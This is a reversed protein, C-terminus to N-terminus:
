ALNFQKVMEQAVVVKGSYQMPDPCSSCLYEVTSAPIDMSKFVSPDIGAGVAGTRAKVEIEIRETLVGGPDLAIVPIKYQAMESGLCEVFRNLALKTITYHMAIGGKGPVGHKGYAAGSTTCIIMGTKNQIMNPICMRSAIIPAMLNTNVNREWTDVDLDLFPDFHGPGVYRANNLLLDVRGYKKLATECLNEVDKRKTLDCQVPTCDVGLARIEQETQKLSGPWESQGQEVTRAALVLNAGHQALRLAMQKGMGRSAGTVVAVKGKLDM